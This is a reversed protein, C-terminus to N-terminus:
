LALVFPAFLLACLGATLALAAVLRRGAPLSRFSTRSSLRGFGRIELAM